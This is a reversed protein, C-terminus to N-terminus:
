QSREQESSNSQASSQREVKLRALFVASGIVAAVPLLWAVRAGYRNAPQSLVGCVIANAVLGVLIMVLFTATAPPMRGSVLFGLIGITSLLYLASHFPNAFALWNTDATLRGADFEGWAMGTVGTARDVIKDTQLTMDVSNLTLQRYINGLIALSTEIPRDTLVDKFFQFQQQTVKIQDDAPLLKFSGNSVNTSFAINTASFRTPDDSASLAELLICTPETDSPCYDQLYSYGPGDQILRATLFPQYVVEANEVKKAAIRLILQEGIGGILVVLALAPGLWRLHGRDFLAKLLLVPTLILWIALHSLSVTIALCGFLTVVCLEWVQMRPSYAALLAASMLLIATLMDPMLFAVYFPLSGLAALAIAVICISSPRPAHALGRVSVRCALWVAGVGLVANLLVMGDFAGLWFFGGALLSFVMSRSGNVTEAAGKGGIIQETAMPTASPEYLPTLDLGLLSLLQHGRDLYAISDFYFTAGGNALFVWLSLLLSIAIACASLGVQRWSVVM